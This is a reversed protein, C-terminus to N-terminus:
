SITGPGGNPIVRAGKIKRRPKMEKKKKKHSFEYQKKRTPTTASRCFVLHIYIVLSFATTSNEQVTRSSYQFQDLLYM